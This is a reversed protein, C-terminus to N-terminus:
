DKFEKLKVKDVFEFRLFTDGFFQIPLSIQGNISKLDEVLNDFGNAKCVDLNRVPFITKIDYTVKLKNM